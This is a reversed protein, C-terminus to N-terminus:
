IKKPPLKVALIKKYDEVQIQDTFQIMMWKGIRMYDDAKSWLEAMANSLTPLIEDMQGVLKYSIVVMASFSNKEPYFTGFTQGSKQYKINWGPKMGCGSYTLKPKTNYTTEIYSTLALWLDKADGIYNAIENMNPEKDKPYLEYWIM